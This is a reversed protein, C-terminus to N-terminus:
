TLRLAVDDTQGAERGAQELKAVVHPRETSRSARAAEARATATM